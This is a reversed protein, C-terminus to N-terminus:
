MGGKVRRRRLAELGLACLALILLYPITDMHVGTDPTISLNNTFTVKEETSDNEPAAATFSYTHTESNYSGGTFGTGVATATYSGPNTEQITVSVGIPLTLTVFEGNSMGTIAATGTYSTGTSGSTVTFPADATGRKATVTFSFEDTLVAMNGTILKELKVDVQHTYQNTITMTTTGDKIVKATGDTAHTSDSTLYTTGVLKYSPINTGGIEEITYTDTPLNPITLGDATVPVKIPTQPPTDGFQYPTSTLNQLYKGTRNNKITVEIEMGSPATIDDPTCTLNKKITLNGKNRTYVNTFVVHNQGRVMTVETTSGEALTYGEIITSDTPSTVEEFVYVGSNVDTVYLANGEADVATGARITFTKAGASSDLSFSGNPALYKGTTKDKIVFLFDHSSVLGYDATLDAKDEDTKGTVKKKVDLTAWMAYLDHYPETEDAAVYGVRHNGELDTSYYGQGGATEAPHYYLFMNVKDASLQSSPVGAHTPNDEEYSTSDGNEVKAWGLFIYGNQMTISSDSTGPTKIFISQNIAMKYVPFRSPVGSNIYVRNRMDPINQAKSIGPYNPYWWLHTPTPNEKDGYEARLQITYTAKRIKTYGGAVAQLPPDLGPQPDDITIYQDENDPKAWETVVPKAYAKLVTFEDGPYVTITTDKYESGDWDQVVWYLFQKTDDNPTSAAGATAQASDLYELNDTPANTGDVPDYTLKIGNAGELKARWKAYLNLQKTIWYRGKDADSNYGEQGPYTNGYLDTETDETQSYPTTVTTDNLVYADFNFAKTCAEDTYWGILTYEDRVGKITNGGSIKEGYDVRFSTKQNGMGFSPDDTPVNPHLFVRFEKKIWKAYVTQNHDPIETFVMEHTCAKDSYWGAFVYGDRQPEYYNAGGKNYSHIDAEYYIDETEALPVETKDDLVSEENDLVKVYLGDFYIIQFKNRSYYMEVDYEYRNGGYSQVVSYTFRDETFGMYSPQHIGGPDSNARAILTEDLYYRIGNETKTQKPNGDKDTPVAFGPPLEKWIKYNYQNPQSNSYRAILFNGNSSTIDGLLQEDMVSIIGKVTDKGGGAGGWSTASHMMWWSILQYNGLDPFSSYKPWQDTIDQGYLADITFYYYRYGNILEYVRSPGYTPNNRYNQNTNTWNTNSTLNLDNNTNTLGTALYWTTGNQPNDQLRAYYFKVSYSIRDYYVNLISNGEPKITVNQNFSSLYFGTYNPADDDDGMKGRYDVGNIRAYRRNGTGQASVTNISTNVTGTLNISQSFDYGTGALNQKWIVVTYPATEVPTWKAYITKSQNLGQNFNFQSGTGEPNEYWGSFRYGGRRPDAPRTPHSGSQIFQPPTYTAGSGNEDFSLWFGKPVHVTFVIDTVDGSLTVDTENPFPAVTVGDKAVVADDVHPYSVWYWGLFAEDQEKPTYPVNITYDVSPDSDKLILTEGHIATGDQDIFSVSIAKVIMAYFNHIEGEVIEDANTKAKAWQRIEGIDMQADTGLDDITYNEKEIWGKFLRGHELEGAGPDYIITSLVDEDDDDNKVLVSAILQSGSYFNLTMRSEEEIENPEVVAYVSFERAPFTVSNDAFSLLADDLMTQAGNDDIHVVHLESGAQRADAIAQSTLTVTLEGGWASPQVKVDSNYLTIDAAALVAGEEVAPAASLAAATAGNPMVGSLSVGVGSDTALSSGWDVLDYVGTFIFRSFHSVQFSVTNGSVQLGTIEEKNNEDVEHVLRISRGTALADTFKKGQVTVTVPGTEPQYEQGAASTLQINYTYLKMESLDPGGRSKMLLRRYPSEAEDTVTLVCGEPLVGTLSILSGDDASAVLTQESLNIEEFKATLRVDKTPTFPATVLTDGDYWGLFARGEEAPPEPFESITYGDEVLYTKDGFTVSHFASPAQYEASGTALAAAPFLQCLMLLTLFLTAARQLIKM